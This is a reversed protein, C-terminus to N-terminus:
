EADEALEVFLGFRLAFRGEVPEGGIVLNWVSEIPGREEGFHFGGVHAVEFAIGIPRPDEPSIVISIAGPFDGPRARPTKAVHAHYRPTPRDTM